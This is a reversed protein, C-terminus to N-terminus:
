YCELIQFIYGGHQKWSLRGAHSGNRTRNKMCSRMDSTGVLTRVKTRDSTPWLKVCNSVTDNHSILASHFCYCGGSPGFHQGSYSLKPGYNYFYPGNLVFIAMKLM